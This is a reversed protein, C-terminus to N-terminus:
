VLIKTKNTVLVTSPLECEEVTFSIVYILINIAM